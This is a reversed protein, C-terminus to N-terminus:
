HFDKNYIVLSEVSREELVNMIRRFRTNEFKLAYTCTDDSGITSCIGRAFTCNLVSSRKVHLQYLPLQQRFMSLSAASVLEPPLQNWIRKISPFLLYFHVNVTSQPLPLRKMHRRCSRAPIIYPTEPIAVLQHVIKDFM